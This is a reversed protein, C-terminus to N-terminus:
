LARPYSIRIRADRRCRARASTLRAETVRPTPRVARSVTTTREASCAGLGSFAAWLAFRQVIRLRVPHVPVQHAKSITIERRACGREKFTLWPRSTTFGLGQRSQENRTGAPARTQAFGPHNNRLAVSAFLGPIRPAGHSSSARQKSDSSTKKATSAARATSRRSRTLTAGPHSPPVEDMPRWTVKPSPPVPGSRKSVGPNATHLRRLTVAWWRWTREAPPLSPARLRVLGHAHHWRCPMWPPLLRAVRPVATYHRRLDM